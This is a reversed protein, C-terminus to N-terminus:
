DAAVLAPLEPWDLHMMEAPAIRGHKEFSVELQANLWDYGERSLRVAAQQKYAGRPNTNGTGKATNRQTSAFANPGLEDMLESLSIGNQLTGAIFDVHHVRVYHPWKERWSRRQIDAPTADDRGEQYKMAIGRGFILTDNPDKVLRAMFIVAGDKVSRPRKGRPYTCSWHCGAREIETMVPLDISERKHSEGFFKVYAQPADTLLASVTIPSAIIGLNVGEDTLGTPAVPKASAWLHELKTDWEDLQDVTLNQGAREWLDDFYARCRGVIPPEGAIFGFELNRLLAAETLNASTVIVRRDGFLYLKAHLGKVGRIQAGADMLFRLAATDSVGAYFDGLCFRTIVRMVEPEGAALLRSVAKLKIFPCVIRLESHDVALAKELM